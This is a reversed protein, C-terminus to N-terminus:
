KRAGLRFYGEEGEANSLIKGADLSAKIEDSRLEGCDVYLEDKETSIAEDRIGDVFRIMEELEAKFEAREGASFNLASLKALKDFEEDPIM